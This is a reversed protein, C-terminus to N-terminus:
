KIDQLENLLDFKISQLDIEQSVDSYKWHFGDDQYRPFIHLHFHGIDNFIGGNQMISYGDPHYLKKIVKIMIKTFKMINFMTIDDVEDFDQYHKKPVILVHGINIPESDLFCIFLADEYLIYAELEKNIIKCFTCNEM